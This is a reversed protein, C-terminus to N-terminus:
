AAESAVRDQPLWRNLTAALAKGAVPKSLFDDMGAALCQQRDEQMANATMAIIPIRRGGAERCRIARTAEFGDMEPMHCDMFVIAYPIRELAEIAERGNGAVDVRYGLKEIMKVAVKQNVPNDEAVLIRGRSRAQVESLSHRTILPAAPQAGTPAASSSNALVLSLCEHLQSQRIPKTLYAAFGADQAAKADGRRGWSTQLILCTLSIRPEAKIRRAVDLVDMGSLQMDMIVLDCPSGQEAASRLHDLAQDGDEVGECLIGAERLQHELMKRTTIHNDVVLIRRGKLAAQPQVAAQNGEPQVDFKATFWFTSGQGAVSNVGIQGGMMEVLQKCIALGLGTGGFKRTTSGDAQTFPQFLKARQESTLGIGTDTVEFRLMWYSARSVPHSAPTAEASIMVVVEGRETFKIANGVLNTLIQRLRGPDGRLATPVGGQVLYALELGKSYAREGILSIADEVTTRLDFDLGELDLKGAEVKSFDLIDNIIDLLHEGSRRVTEALERQESSLTTDLLLGTMGIVGNMPTRIEHSMTALFEAKMKAADLAKDRAEALEINKKELDQAAQALAEESLKRETIDTMTGMMRLPHSQEDWQVVKGRMSFWKWEGSRHRVRHEVIYSATQGALHESLAQDVWPLDESHIRSKWDVINNLPIEQDELGLLRIWSPSYYALKTSLNWDWLGDTAVDLTCRLRLESARLAEEAQKRATIDTHSGLLRVRQGTPETVFSARAEIWRYSGDKHRLRFDQQYEGDPHALYKQVYGIARAHDSPHLRDEWTEFADPLETDKYGLQSKWERSFRVENTETHWDWLGINAAGLGQRLKEESSRLSEEAWKRACFQSLQDAVAQFTTLLSPDELLIEHHFFELVAHVRGALRVPFAAATHFGVRKALAARPFNPDCTVDSIWEPKASAWVRGPLGNGTTFTMQRSGIGYDDSATGSLIWTSHCRLAQVSEDVVWLLGEDWGLTQCVPQLIASIADDLGSASALVNAVEHQLTLRRETQKRVTIDRVIAVLYERDHYLLQASVEVPFTTGDKCLHQSEIRLPVNAERLNRMHTQFVPQTVLPDIDSVTLGSLEGRTYGISEYSQRNGDLFRGSVPDIVEISDTVQDLLARFLKLEKEAQKRETIVETFMIVGGIDGTAERWPRVEWRLWDESGDARVFRDEERREVAGGLCRRHIAQWEELERIEPFVDYHFRGILSQDGLRYDQLWRHSVAIYRLDRDLMAVAAPTHEVFSKLLDHSRTLADEARKRASIDRVFACHFEHGEHALHNVHVEIPIIQGGKTRHVTEFAMSKRQRSEVWFAPWLEAQFDPNLDHVTMVRLEDRSYGVMASAADNAYLINAHQDIWYVADVAQDMAFQTRQLAEAARKRETIDHTVALHESHGTLPNLFPAAFTEM